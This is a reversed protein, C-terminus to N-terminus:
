LACLCRLAKNADNAIQSPPLTLWGFQRALDYTNPSQAASRFRSQLWPALVEGYANTLPVKIFANVRVTVYCSCLPTLITTSTM